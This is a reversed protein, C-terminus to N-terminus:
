SIYDEILQRLETEDEVKMGYELLIRDYDPLWGAPLEYSAEPEKAGERYISLTDGDLKLVYAHDQAPVTGEAQPDKRGALPLQVQIEEAFVTGSLAAEEPLSQREQEGTCLIVTGATLLAAAAATFHWIRGTETFM